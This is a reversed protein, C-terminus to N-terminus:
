RCGPSTLVVVVIREDSAAYGVGFEVQNLYGEHDALLHTRHPSSAKFGAWAAAPSHYNLGLSEVANGQRPYYDPLCGALALWENPTVGEPTNHSYYRRNVMDEARGQAVLTLRASCHAGHRKQGPDTLILTLLDDAYFTAGCPPTERWNMVVPLHRRVTWYAGSGESRAVAEIAAEIIRETDPPLPHDDPNGWPAIGRALPSVFAGRALPSTSQPPTIPTCATLLAALALLVPWFYKM